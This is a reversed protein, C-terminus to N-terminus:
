GDTDNDSSYNENLVEDDNDDISIADSATCGAPSVSSDSDEESSPLHKRKPRASSSAIAQVRSIPQMHPILQAHSIPMNEKDDGPELKVTLSRSKSTSDEDESSTLELVPVTSKLAHWQKRVHTRERCLDRHLNYPEHSM